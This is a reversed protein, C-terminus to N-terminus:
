VGSWPQLHARLWCTMEPSIRELAALQFRPKDGAAVGDREALTVRADMNELVLSFSQKEDGEPGGDLALCVDPQFHGLIRNSEFILHAAPGQERIFRRLMPGLADAGATVLLSRRAGAALYRGTDTGPGPLTEEWVPKDQGHAHSTIKVATWHFEPLAAIVGCVLATKGVGRGCGGVVISAV